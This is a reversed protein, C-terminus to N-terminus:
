AAVLRARLAEIDALMNTMMVLAQEKLRLYRADPPGAEVITQSISRLYENIMLSRQEHFPFASVLLRRRWEPEDSAGIIDEAQARRVLYGADYFTSWFAPERLEQTGPRRATHIAVDAFALRGTMRAIDDIWHDVFWYPFYPPYIWGLRQALGATVVNIQPFSQNAYQNYVVGINDPFLAVAELILKDFGPTVHPAYDVMPLYADAPYQLAVNWKEAVSDPRPMVGAHIRHDAPLRELAAITPEDDDDAVIVLRTTDLAIRALTEQVTFLLLDPRGRTALCITLRM